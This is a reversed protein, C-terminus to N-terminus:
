SPKRVSRVRLAKGVTSVSLSGPFGGSTRMISRRKTDPPRPVGRSALRSRAAGSEMQPVKLGRLGRLGMGGLEAIHRGSGAPRRRGRRRARGCRECRGPRPPGPRIRRVPWRGGWAGANRKSLRCEGDQGGLQSRDERLGGAAGADPQRLHCLRLGPVDPRAIATGDHMAEVTVGRLDGNPTVDDLVIHAQVDTPVLGGAGVVNKGAPCDAQASVDSEGPASLTSGRVTEYGDVFGCIAFATITWSGDYGNADETGVVVFARGDSPAMVNVRVGHGGGVIDAGGGLAQRNDPCVAEAEKVPESGSQPSQGFALVLNTAASAPAAFVVSVSVASLLVTLGALLRFGRSQTM